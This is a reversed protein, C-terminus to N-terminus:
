RPQQNVRAASPYQDTPKVTIARLDVQVVGAELDALQAFARASLDIIRGNTAPFRDNVRVSVSRGTDVTTVRLWTGFPLTAHACTFAKPDYPEGSATSKGAYDDGYWSALGRAIVKGTLDAGPPVNGVQAMPAPEPDQMTACGAMSGALAVAALVGSFVRLLGVM